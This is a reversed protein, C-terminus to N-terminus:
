QVLLPHADHGKPALLHELLSLCVNAVNLPESGAGSRTM